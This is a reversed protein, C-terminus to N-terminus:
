VSNRNGNKKEKKIGGKCLIRIEKIDICNSGMKRHLDMTIDM